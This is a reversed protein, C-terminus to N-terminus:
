EASLKKVADDILSAEESQKETISPDSMGRAIKKFIAPTLGLKDKAEACIDKVSERETRIKGQCLELESVFGLLQKHTVPNNVIGAIIDEFKAAQSM